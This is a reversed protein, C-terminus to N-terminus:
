GFLGRGRGSATGGLLRERYKQYDSMSMQSIDEASFTRQDSDTDLPGSAPTTIRTGAMDRRASTMAQQASELIRMSRDKLSAISKEIEDQSSGDVLDVLEPIINDRESEIRQSRYNQLETFMRERDLLAFAKERENREADLQAAFEQEKQQLLTRVDVDNEAERRKAEDAEHRRRAEETDRDEKDKRLQSVEEKLHEIQPYLKHKEQERVKALDESTFFTGTPVPATVEIFGPPSTLVAAGLNEAAAPSSEIVAEAFTSPNVTM